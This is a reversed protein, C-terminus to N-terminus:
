IHILSLGLLTGYFYEEESLSQETTLMKVLWNTIALGDMHGKQLSQVLHTHTDVFAPMCLMGGAELVTEGEGPTLPGIAAIKGDAIRIDADAATLDDFRALKCNKILLTGRDM